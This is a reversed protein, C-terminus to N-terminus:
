HIILFHTLTDPYPLPLHTHIRAPTSDPFSRPYLTQIRSRSPHRSLPPAITLSRLNHWLNLPFVMSQFFSTETRSVQLLTQLLQLPISRISLSTNFYLTYSWTWTRECTSWGVRVLVRVGEWLYELEEWLYELKVRVRVRVRMVPVVAGERARQGCKWLYELGLRSWTSWGRKVLVGLVREWTSWGLLLIIIIIFAMLTDEYRLRQAKIHTCAMNM